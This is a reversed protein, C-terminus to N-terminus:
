VRLRRKRLCVLGVGGLGLGVMVASAPEPVTTIQASFSGPSGGAIPASFLLPPGVTFPTGGILQTATLVGPPSTPFVNATSVGNFTNTFTGTGPNQVNQGSLTGFIYFSSTASNNTISIEITYNANFSIPAGSNSVGVSGLPASTPQGSGVNTVGTYTITAPSGSTADVLPSTFTGGPNGISFTTTYSYTANASGSFGLAAAVALATLITIGKLSM